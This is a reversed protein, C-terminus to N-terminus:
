PSLHATADMHGHLIRVIIVEREGVEYYLVHAEVPYARLGSVLDDRARGIFPHSRLREMGEDLKAKYAARQQNGWRRATFRLIDRLDARAEPAVILRRKPASM